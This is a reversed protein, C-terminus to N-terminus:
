KIEEISFARNGDTETCTIELTDFLRSNTMSHFDIRGELLEFRLMEKHVKVVPERKVRYRIIVGPNTGWGFHGASNKRSHMTDGHVYNVEVLVLEGVPCGDGENWAMWPGFRTEKDTM